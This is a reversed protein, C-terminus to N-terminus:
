AQSEDGSIKLVAFQVSLHVYISFRDNEKLNTKKCFEIGVLIITEM